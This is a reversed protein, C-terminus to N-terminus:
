SRHLCFKILEIVCFLIQWQHDSLSRFVFIFRFWINIWKLSQPFADRTHTHRNYLAWSMSNSIWLSDKCLNFMTLQVCFTLLFFVFRLLTWLWLMKFPLLIHVRIGYSRFYRTHWLHAIYIKFLSNIFWLSLSIARSRYLIHNESKCLYREICDCLLISFSLSDSAFQLTVIM